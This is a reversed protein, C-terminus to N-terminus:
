IGLERRAQEMTLGEGRAVEERAQQSGAIEEATEPEDDFPAAELARLVPDSDWDPPRVSPPSEDCRTNANADDGCKRGTAMAGRVALSFHAALGGHEVSAEGHDLRDALTRLALAKAVNVAEAETSGYALVGPLETVECLWRGDAEREIELTLKMGEGYAM